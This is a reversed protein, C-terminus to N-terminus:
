FFEAVIRYPSALLPTGADAADLILKLRTYDIDKIHADSSLLLTAGTLAAEAVILSDNLESDPILGARRLRQAIEAVIGKGVPVFNMPRFGWPNLLSSLARRALRRDLATDGNEAKLAIEEIVTPTVIFEVSPLKRQITEFADIVLDEENARDLLVNTDVAVLPKKKV